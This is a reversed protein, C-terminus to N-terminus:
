RLQRSAREAADPRSQRRRYRAAVALRWAVSVFVYATSAVVTATVISGLLLPRWYGPLEELVWRWSMEISFAQPPLELILLGLRYEFFYVPVWTVPNTIFVAAVAVPLNVRFSIAALVAIISQLPLPLLAIFLGLWVAGTISRRSVAFFSPHRLLVEFPRMYWPYKRDRPFEASIRRFFRRPM